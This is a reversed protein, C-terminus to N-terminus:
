KILKIPTLYALFIDFLFLIFFSGITSFLFSDKYELFFGAVIFFVFIYIFYHYAKVFNFYITDIKYKKTNKKDILINNGIWTANIIKLINIFNNKQFSM